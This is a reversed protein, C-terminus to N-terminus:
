PGAGEGNEPGYARSEFGYVPLAVLLPAEQGKKGLWPTKTTTRLINGSGKATFTHIPM